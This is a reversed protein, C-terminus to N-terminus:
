LVREQALFAPNYWNNDNEFVKELQQIVGLWDKVQNKNFDNSKEILHELFKHISKTCFIQDTESSELSIPWIKNANPGLKESMSQFSTIILGQRLKPFNGIYMGASKMNSVSGFYTYPPYDSIRSM